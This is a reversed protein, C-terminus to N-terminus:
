KADAAFYLLFCLTKREDGLVVFMMKMTFSADFAM